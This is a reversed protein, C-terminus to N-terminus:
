KSFRNLKNLFPLTLLCAFFPLAAIVLFLQHHPYETYLGAMRGAIYSGVATASFWFGMMLGRIRKPAVKSVFSLGMPSVLIEAITVLFYSSILWLPSMIKKDQDGGALSALVMVLVSLSLILLGSCIKTASSPERGRNRLKGFAALLLPTLVLIFFPNFFQYTEPKLYKSEATSGEAFDTLSSGNQYFPIWFFIVIIFLIALSLVRQWDESSFPETGKKEVSSAATSAGAHAPALHKRGAQFIIMSLVMGVAAAAFSLNYASVGHDTLMAAVSTLNERAQLWKLWNDFHDGIYTAALPSLTAGINVGMYFINFAADKLKSGDQYLNGVVVSINAKFLGTGTAVLGLGAFFFPLRERSSITLAIYGIVMLVAGLRITNRQGLVRDGLFGGLIPIFYVAGLFAGYCNGKQKGSWGFKDGMYLYLIAMLVYFGFREWMETFFLVMLGRPHDRLM